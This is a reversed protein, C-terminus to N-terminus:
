ETELTESEVETEEATVLEKKPKKSKRNNTEETLGLAKRFFDSELAADIFTDNIDGLEGGGLVHQEILRTAEEREVNAVVCTFGMAILFYQRRRMAEAVSFGQEEMIIFHEFGLQPVKYSKNNIKVKM